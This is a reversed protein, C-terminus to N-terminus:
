VALMRMVFAFVLAMCLVLLAKVIALDDRVHSLTRRHDALEGAAKAAAEPSAGGELLARYLEGAVIAM